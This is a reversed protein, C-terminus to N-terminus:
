ALEDGEGICLSVDGVDDFSVISFEHMGEKTEIFVEAKDNGCALTKRLENILKRVKM